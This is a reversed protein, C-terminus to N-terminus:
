VYHSPRAIAGARASPRPTQVHPDEAYRPIWIPVSSARSRQNHSRSKDVALAGVRGSLPFPEPCTHKGKRAWFADKAAHRQRPGHNVSERGAYISTGGGGTYGGDAAYISTDAAGTFM